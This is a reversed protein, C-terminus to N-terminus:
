PTHAASGDGQEYRRIDRFSVPGHPLWSTISAAGEGVRETCICRAAALVCGTCATAVCRTRGSLGPVAMLGGGLEYLAVEDVRCVDRDVQELRFVWGGRRWVVRAPDVVRPVGHADFTGLRVSGDPWPVALAALLWWWM